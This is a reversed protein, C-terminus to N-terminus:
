LNTEEELSEKAYHPVYSAISPLRGDLVEQKDVTHQRHVIQHSWGFTRRNTTIPWLQEELKLVEKFLFVRGVTLYFVM